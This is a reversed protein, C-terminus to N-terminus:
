PTGEGREPAPVAPAAVSSLRAREAMLRQWAEALVRRGLHSWDASSYDRDSASTHEEPVPGDYMGCLSETPEALPLQRPM